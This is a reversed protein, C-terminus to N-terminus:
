PELTRTSGQSATYVHMVKGGPRVTEKEFRMGVKEAVRQSPRNEPDILSIIRGLGLQAFAYDRIASGMETAYGKGWASAAFVYVLEVEEQGDVEKELLGCHGVVEGTAKEVVPWLDMESSPGSRAEEELLKQIEGQDRPGGMHRTVQPDAWLRSLAEADGSELPRLLLRETEIYM